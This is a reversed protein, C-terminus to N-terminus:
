PAVTFGALSLRAPHLPHLDIGGCRPCIGPLEEADFQHSCTNCRVTRPLSELDLTAERALTSERKVVEFCFRVHDADLSVLPNFRLKIAAIKAAGQATAEAEAATVIEKILHAEHM